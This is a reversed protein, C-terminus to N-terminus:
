TCTSNTRSGGIVGGGRASNELSHNESLKHFISCSLGQKCELQQPKLSIKPLIMLNQSPKSSMRDTKPDPRDIPPYTPTVPTEATENAPLKGCIKRDNRRDYKGIHGKKPDCATQHTEYWDNSREQFVPRSQPDHRKDFM